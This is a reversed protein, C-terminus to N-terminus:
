SKPLLVRDIVHLVGNSQYVDYTSIAAVTGAADAITINSPGNMAATLMGGAVTKLMAKGGGAAIEQELMAADLRGPVVHYTLIGSLAAKNQPQILSQVTGTPLRAFAANAPAFVTFPGPSALTDALGAAKVAAVLTTHDSSNVANQVINQSPLMAQGGVEVAMDAAGAPWGGLITGTAVASFLAAAFLKDLTM